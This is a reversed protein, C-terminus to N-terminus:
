QRMPAALTPNRLLLARRVLDHENEVDLKALRRKGCRKDLIALARILPRIDSLMEDLPQSLSDFMARNLAIHDEIGRERLEHDIKERDELPVMDGRQDFVPFRAKMYQYYSSGYVKTGDITVLTEGEQDHAHRYRTTHVEVHGVAEPAFREEISHKLKSWKM